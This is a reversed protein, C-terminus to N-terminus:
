KKKKAKIKTEVFLVHQNVIPDFKMLQLKSGALDVSKKSVYFYGTNATSLLKFLM